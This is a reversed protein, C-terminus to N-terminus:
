LLLTVYLRHSLPERPISVSDGVKEDIRVCTLLTGKVLQSSNAVIFGRGRALKAVGDEFDVIQVTQGYELAFPDKVKLVPSSHILDQTKKEEDVHQKRRPDSSMVALGEKERVAYTGCPGSLTAMGSIIRNLDFQEEDDDDDDDVLSSTNSGEFANANAEDEKQEIQSQRQAAEMMALLVVNKPIPLAIPAAPTPVEQPPSTMNGQQQPSYRGGRNYMPPATGAWSGNGQANLNRTQQQVAPIFLPERCEMCRRLRKTCPACVYTHGCPLVVPPRDTMNFEDFCIVCHFPVVSAAAAAVRSRTEM